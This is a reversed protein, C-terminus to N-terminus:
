LTPAIPPQGMGMGIGSPGLGMPSPPSMGPGASQVPPVMGPGAQLGKMGPGLKASLAPLIASIPIEPKQQEVTPKPPMFAQLMPTVIELSNAVDKVGAGAMLLKMDQSNLLEGVNGGSETLKNLGETVNKFGAGALISLISGLAAAPDPMTKNKREQKEPRRCERGPSRSADPPGFFCFPAWSEGPVRLIKEDCARDPLISNRVM